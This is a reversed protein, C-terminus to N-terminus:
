KSHKLQNIWILLFEPLLSRFIRKYDILHNRDVWSGSYRHISRTNSTLHLRTTIVNIPAFFDSPYIYIDRFKQIGPVVVLGNNLIYETTYDVITKYGMKSNDKDFTIVKYLNLLDLLLPSNKEFACGLGPNVTMKKSGCHHDLEKGLFGGRELIDEFSSIVEVDTDFYIGGYNYLIWFRAYDSVFAYKGKKYAESVYPIINVDFNKENWEIIDYGPFFKKWSDICQLALPPLPNNGFWCYHIVKPIM